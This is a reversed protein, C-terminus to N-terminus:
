KAVEDVPAADWIPRMDENWKKPDKKHMMEMESALLPHKDIVHSTMVAVMDGWTATSFKEGCEGGLEKCTMTKTKM